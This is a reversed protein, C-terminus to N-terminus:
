VKGTEYFIDTEVKAVLFNMGVGYLLFAKNCDIIHKKIICLTYNYLLNLSKDNNCGNSQIEMNKVSLM